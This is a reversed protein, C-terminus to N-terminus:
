APWCQLGIDRENAISIARDKLAEDWEDPTGRWRILIGKWGTVEIAEAVQGITMTPLAPNIIIFSDKTQAKRSLALTSVHTGPVFLHTLNKMMPMVADLALEEDLSSRPMTCDLIVLHHLTAAISSLFSRFDENSLGKVLKLTLMRLRPTSLSIFRSLQRSDITGSHLILTHINCALHDTSHQVNDHENAWQFVELKDLNAWKAIFMQIDTMTLSDENHHLSCSRVDLLNSLHYMLQTTLSGPVAQLHVSGCSTAHQMIKLFGHWGDLGSYFTSAGDPSGSAKPKYDRCDLTHILAGREPRMELSRAVRLVEVRHVEYTGDFRGFFSIWSM